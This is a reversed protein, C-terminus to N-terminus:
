KNKIYQKYAERLADAQAKKPSQTYMDDFYAFSVVKTVKPISFATTLQQKVRDFTAPHFPVQGNPSAFTELDSWFVGKYNKNEQFLGREAAQYYEALGKSKKMYRNFFMTGNEALYTYALGYVYENGAKASENINKMIYEYDKKELIGILGRELADYSNDTKSCAVLFLSAIM